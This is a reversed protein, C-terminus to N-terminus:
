GAAAERYSVMRQADEDWLSARLCERIARLTLGTTHPSQLARIGAMAEPLRYFPIRVNVHHVHHYGINGTFWRM